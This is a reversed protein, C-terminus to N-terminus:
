MNESLMHEKRFTLVSCLSVESTLNGVKDRRLGIRLPDGRRGRRPDSERTTRTGASRCAM